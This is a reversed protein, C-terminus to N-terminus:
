GSHFMKFDRKRGMGTVASKQCVTLDLFLPAHFYHNCVPVIFLEQKQSQPYLCLRHSIISLAKDEQSFPSFSVQFLPINMLLFSYETFYSLCMYLYFVPLYLFHLKQNLAVHGM